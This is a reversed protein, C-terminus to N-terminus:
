CIAGSGRWNVRLRERRHSTDEGSMPLARPSLCRGGIWSETATLPLAELYVYAAPIMYEPLAVSLHTRLEEAGVEQGTYYAVLRKGGEVDEVAVVVERAGRM